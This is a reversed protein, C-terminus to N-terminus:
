RVLLHNVAHHYRSHEVGDVRYALALLRAALLSIAFFVVVLFPGAVWGLWAVARPFALVGSGVMACFFHMSATAVTGAPLPM